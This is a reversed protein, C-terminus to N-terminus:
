NSKQDRISISGAEDIVLITKCTSCRFHGANTAKLVARCIPCDYERPFPRSEAEGCHQTLFSIADELTTKLNFFSALGLLKFVEYVRPAIRILIIEGKRLRVKMLFTGFAGISDGVYTIRSFDFILRIYGREIALAVRQQFTASNNSDLYGDLYLVLCGPVEGVKQLRIRLSEDEEDDFGPVIDNNTM